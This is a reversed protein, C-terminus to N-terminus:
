DIAIAVATGLGQLYMCVSMLAQPRCPWTLLELLKNFPVGMHSCSLVWRTIM